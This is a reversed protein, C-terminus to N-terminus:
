IREINSIKVVILRIDKLKTGLHFKLDLFDNKETNEACRLLILTNRVRVFLGINLKICKRIVEKLYTLEEETIFPHTEPYSFVSVLAFACWGLSTLGWFYFVLPWSNFLDTLWGSVAFATVSGILSGSM